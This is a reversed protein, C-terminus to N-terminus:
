CSCVLCISGNSTGWRFREFPSPLVDSQRGSPWVRLHIRARMARLLSASKSFRGPDALVARGLSLLSTDSDLVSQPTASGRRALAITAVRRVAPTGSTAPQSYQPVGGAMDVAYGLRCQEDACLLADGRVVSAIDYTGSTRRIVAGFATNRLLTLLRLVHLEQFLDRGFGDDGTRSGDPTLTEVRERAAGAVGPIWDTRDEESALRDAARVPCTSFPTAAATENTAISGAAAAAVGALTAVDLIPADCTLNGRALWVPATTGPLRVTVGRRGDASVTPRRPDCALASITHFGGLHAVEKPPEPFPIIGGHDSDGQAAAAAVATVTATTLVIAVGAALVAPSCYFTAGSRMFGRGDPFPYPSPGDMPVRAPFCLRRRSVFSLPAVFPSRVLQAAPPVYSASPLLQM